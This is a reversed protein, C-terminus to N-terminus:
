DLAGIFGDADAKKKPKSQPKKTAKPKQTAKNEPTPKPTPKPTATPKETKKVKKPTSTIEATHSPTVMPEATILNRATEVPIRDKTNKEQNNWAKGSSVVVTICLLLFIGGVAAWKLRGKRYKTDNTEYEAYLDEMLQEVNRYRKEAKLSLGKMIASKVKLPLEVESMDALSPLQEGAMREIADVPIAGTLMYYMTACISYIDSWEGQCGHPRYQEEPSFGRKFLVTMSKMSVVDQVRAAGFDVLVLKGDEHFLLNDPSIDRHLLGTRHVKALATLVPKMLTLVEKGKMKGESQVHNKVSGGDVYEMVMYATQNAYFFDRVSVIGEQSSFRTLYRAEQIFQELKKQYEANDEAYVNPDTGRIVDRNVFDVPFYEKIAVPVELVFDWALYTIGFSGEGLVKGLIYREALTTGPLLCRPIPKYDRIRLHCYPCEEEEGIPHMCGICVNMGKIKM